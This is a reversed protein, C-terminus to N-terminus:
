PKEAIIHITQRELPGERWADVTRLGAAQVLQEVSDPQYQYIRHQTIGAAGQVRVTKRGEGEPLHFSVLGGPLLWDFFLSLRQRAMEPEIGQLTDVAWVSQITRHPLLTADVPTTIATLQEPDHEPPVVPPHAADTFAYVAYGKQLFVDTYTGRDYRCDIVIGTPPLRGLLRQVDQEYRLAAM